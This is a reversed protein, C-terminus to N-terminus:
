LIHTSPLFTHQYSSHIGIIRFRAPSVFIYASSVLTHRHYLRINFTFNYAPLLFTDWHCQHKYTIRIYLSSLFTHQHIYRLVYSNISTTLIYVLTRFCISSVFTHQHYWHIGIIHFYASSIFTMSKLVAAFIQLFLSLFLDCTTEFFLSNVDADFINQSTMRVLPRIM